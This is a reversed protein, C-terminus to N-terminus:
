ARDSQAPMWITRLNWIFLSISKGAKSCKAEKERVGYSKMRMSPKLFVGNM